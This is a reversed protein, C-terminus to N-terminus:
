FFLFTLVDHRSKDENIFVASSNQLVSTKCNTSICGGEKQYIGHRATDVVM